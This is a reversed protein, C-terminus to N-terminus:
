CGKVGSSWRANRAHRDDRAATFWVMPLRREREPLGDIMLRHGPDDRLADDVDGQTTESDRSMDQRVRYTGPPVDPIRVKLATPRLGVASIAVGPGTKADTPRQQDYELYLYYLTRWSGNEFKELILAVDTIDSDNNAGSITRTIIEGPTVTTESLLM